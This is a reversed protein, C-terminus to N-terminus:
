YQHRANTEKMRCCKSICIVELAKLGKGPNFTFVSKSFVFDDNGTDVDCPQRNRSPQPALIDPASSPPLYSFGWEMKLSM